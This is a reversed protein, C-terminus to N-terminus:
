IPNEEVKTSKSVAREAEWKKDRQTSSRSDARVCHVANQVKDGWLIDGGM